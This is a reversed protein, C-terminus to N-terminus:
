IYPLKGIGLGRESKEPHPKITPSPLGLSHVLNSAGLQAMTYINFHFRLMKPLEGLGLGHEGKGIPTIKNHSKAFGLQTGFIFDCAEATTYINYSFVFNQFAGRTLAVGV